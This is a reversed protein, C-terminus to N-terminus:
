RPSKCQVWYTVWIEIDVNSGNTFYPCAWQLGYHLLDVNSTPQYQQSVSFKTGTPDGIMYRPRFTRSHYKDASWQRVNQYAMVTDVGSLPVTTNYDVCELVQPIEDTSDDFSNVTPRFEVKVKRLKYSDFLNTFDTYQPIDNLKFQMLGNRAVTLPALSISTFQVKRRFLYKPRRVTRRTRRANSRRTTRRRVYSKKRYFRPM